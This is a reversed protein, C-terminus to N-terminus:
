AADCGSRSPANGHTEDETLILRSAQPLYIRISDLAENTRKHVRSGHQATRLGNRFLLIQSPEALEMREGEDRDLGVEIGYRFISHTHGGCVEMIQIPRGDVTKIGAVLREIDKVLIQAKARDRYEDVYKM